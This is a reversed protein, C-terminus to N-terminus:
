RVRKLFPFPSESSQIFTQLLWAQSTLIAVADSLFELVSYVLAWRSVQNILFVSVKAWLDSLMPFM